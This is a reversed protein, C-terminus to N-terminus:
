QSSRFSSKYNSKTNARRMADGDDGNEDNHFARIKLTHRTTVEANNGRREIIEVRLKQSIYNCNGPDSPLARTWKDVGKVMKFSYKKSIHELATAELEIGARM